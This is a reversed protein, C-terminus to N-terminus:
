VGGCGVHCPYLISSILCPGIGSDEILAQLQQPAVLESSDQGLFSIQEQM